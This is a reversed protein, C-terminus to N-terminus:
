WREMPLSFLHGVPFQYGHYKFRRMSTQILDLVNNTFGWSGANRSANPSIIGMTMQLTNTSGWVPKRSLLVGLEVGVQCTDPNAWTAV